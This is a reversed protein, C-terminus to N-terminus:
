DDVKEEKLISEIIELSRSAYAKKREEKKMRGEIPNFIGHTVNMPQFDIHYSSIYHPLAGLATKDTFDIMEKGNLFRAMNIGAVMGSSASELYGEVGTIQGAFFLDDRVKTQYYKNLVKPANIYTNKHM